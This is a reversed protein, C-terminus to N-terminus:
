GLSLQKLCTNTELAKAIRACAANGVRAKSLQLVELRCGLGGGSELMVGLAEVGRLSNFLATKRGEPGLRGFKGKGAVVEDATGCGLDCRNLSLSQLVTLAQQQQPTTDSADDSANEGLQTLTEALTEIGDRTVSSRSLNLSSLRLGARLDSCIVTLGYDGVRVGSLDLGRPPEARVLTGYESQQATEGQGCGFGLGLLM